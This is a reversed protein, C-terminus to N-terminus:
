KKAEDETAIGMMRLFATATQIVLGPRQAGIQCWEIMREKPLIYHRLYTSLWDTSLKKKEPANEWTLLAHDDPKRVAFLGFPNDVIEFDAGRRPTVRVGGPGEPGPEELKAVLRAVDLERREAEEAAAKRREAQSRRHSELEASEQETLPM